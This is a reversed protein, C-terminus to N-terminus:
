GLLPNAKLISLVLCAGAVTFGLPATVDHM